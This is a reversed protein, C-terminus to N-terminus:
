PRHLTSTHAWHNRRYARRAAPMGSALLSRIAQRDVAAKTFNEHSLLLSWSSTVRSPCPSDDGGRGQCDDTVSLTTSGGSWPLMMVPIWGTLIGDLQTWGIRTCHRKSIFATSVGDLWSNQTNSKGPHSPHGFAGCATLAARLESSGM